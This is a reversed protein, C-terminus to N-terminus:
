EEYREDFLNNIFDIIEDIYDLVSYIGYSHKEEYAKEYIIRAQRTSMNLSIESKIYDYIKEHICDRFKNREYNLREVEEDHKKNHELVKERNWKVSQNEDIVYYNAYRQSSPKKPMNDWITFDNLIEKKLSNKM